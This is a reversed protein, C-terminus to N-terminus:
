QLEWSDIDANKGDGGEAGDAGYSIIDFEEHLGPSLYVYANGWPDKPIKGKEVYGGARWAKPKPEGGPEKTLAELGQETSPYSANDLYYQKLATELNKIDLQAKLTRAKDTEGMFKPVVVVALTALIFMVVMLEILTFGKQNSKM